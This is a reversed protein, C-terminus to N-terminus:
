QFTFGKRAAQEKIIGIMTQDLSAPTSYYVASADLAEEARQIYNIISEKILARESIKRILIKRQQDFSTESLMNPLDEPLLQRLISTDAAYADVLDWGAYSNSESIKFVVRERFYTSGLSQANSDLKELRKLKAVGAPGYPMYTTNLDANRIEIIKDWYTEGYKFSSDQDIAMYRGKGSSSANEWFMTKGEDSSGCYITNIIINRKAANKCATQYPIPGQNFIENGAIFIIKLDEKNTSWNLSDLAYQIAYGCFEHSGETKLHCLHDSLLDIDSTLPTYLKFYGNAESEANGFSGLAIEITPQQDNKKSKMLQNVMGWIQGKAQRILGDMSGSVDLLLAIQIKDDKTRSNQGSVQTFIMFVLLVSVIYKKMM